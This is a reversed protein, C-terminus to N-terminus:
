NRTSHEVVFDTLSGVSELHHQELSEPDVEMDLSDELAMLLGLVSTSDLDLDDFLRTADTVDPLPRGLVNSLAEVVAGVVRDRGLAEQSETNTSTSM